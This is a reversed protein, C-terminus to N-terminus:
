KPKRQNLLHIIRIQKNYYITAKIATSLQEAKELSISSSFYIVFQIDMFSDGPYERKEILQYHFINDKIKEDESPCKGIAYM